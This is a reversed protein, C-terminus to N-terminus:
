RASGGESSSAWRTSVPPWSSTTWSRLRVRAPPPRRVHVVRSRLLVDPHRHGVAVAGAAHGRRPVPGAPRRRATAGRLLLGRPVGDLGVGRGRARVTRGAPRGRRAPFLRLWDPDEIVPLDRHVGPMPETILYYHEAAQLPVDVGALAGFQRSWMGACVVVFECEITGQGTVVGAVRKGRTAVGTAPVGEIIVAGNARAGRALSMAVGVPDARGEDAVYFGGVLDDTRLLPWMRGIESPSLEHDEVGFGNVFMAERRLAEMRHENTAVSIHGIPRFGTSLGTEEELRAYLDRSYRSMFLATEDVMGASTILGAAHWTTGSTLRDRELLVVDTWGLRTLHYAISSGIVGGGVIVVRARDPLM